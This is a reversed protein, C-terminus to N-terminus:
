DHTKVGRPDNSTKWPTFFVPEACAGLPNALPAVCADCPCVLISAWPKRSAPIARRLPNVATRFALLSGGGSLSSRDLLYAVADGEKPARV